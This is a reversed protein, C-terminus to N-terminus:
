EEVAYLSLEIELGLAAALQILKNPLRIYQAPVDKQAIGFDLTLTEVGPFERLQRIQEVYAKLFSIAEEVQKPYNDFDADSVDINIGTQEHKKGDPRSRPFVPEGLKMVACVPLTCNNLCADVDFENGCARLMTSM